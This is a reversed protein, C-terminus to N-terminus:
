VQTPILRRSKKTREAMLSVPSAGTEACCHHFRNCVNNAEKRSDYMACGNTSWAIIEIKETKIDIIKRNEDIKSNEKNKVLNSKAFNSKEFDSKEKSKRNKQNKEFTMKYQGTEKESCSSCANPVLFMQWQLRLDKGASNRSAGRWGSCDASLLRQLHGIKRNRFFLSEFSQLIYM